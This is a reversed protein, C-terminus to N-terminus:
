TMICDFTPGSLGAPRWPLNKPFEQRKRDAVPACGVDVKAGPGKKWGVGKRKTKKGKKGIGAKMVEHSQVGVSVVYRERILSEDSGCSRSM